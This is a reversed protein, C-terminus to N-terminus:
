EVRQSGPTVKRSEQEPSVYTRSEFRWGNVTKTYVDEYHGGGKFYAKGTKKDESADIVVGSSRFRWGNPTNVYLDGYAGSANGALWRIEDFDKSTLQAASEQATVVQRSKFRWGQPTEVYVDEYHGLTSPATGVAGEPSPEIVATPVSRPRREGNENCQRESLVLDILRQRGKV